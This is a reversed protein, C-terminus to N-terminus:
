HCASEGLAGRRPDAGLFFLWCTGEALGGVAPSPATLTSPYLPEEFVPSATRPPAPVPRPLSRPPEPEEVAPEAEKTTGDAEVLIYYSEDREAELCLLAQETDIIKLMSSPAIGRSIESHPTEVLWFGAEPTTMSAVKVVQGSVLQFGNSLSLTNLAEAYLIDGDPQSSWEELFTIVNPKLEYTIAADM